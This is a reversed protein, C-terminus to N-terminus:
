NRDLVPLCVDMSALTGAAKMAAATILLVSRRACGVAAGTEREISTAAARQAAGENSYVSLAEALKLCLSVSLKEAADCAFGAREVEARYAACREARAKAAKEAKVTALTEALVARRVRLREIQKGAHELKLAAADGAKVDGRREADHLEREHVVQSAGASALETACDSSRKELAATEDPIFAKLIAVGM